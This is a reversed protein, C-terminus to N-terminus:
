LTELKRPFEEIVRIAVKGDFKSFEVRPRGEKLKAPSKGGNGATAGRVVDYNRLYTRHKM